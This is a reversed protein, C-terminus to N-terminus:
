TKNAETANWCANKQGFQKLWNKLVPYDARWDLPQRWDLYGLSAALTITVLDVQYPDPPNAEFVALASRIKVHQHDLWRASPMSSDRFRGEYTVLLAADTIGDALRASTLARFRPLGQKPLLGHDSCGDLMEMIVHSDFFAEQGILLCPMKGLPNQRRLSDDRNLTDAPEVTVKDTLGLVLLAMRVKRGFPSTVTTRLVVPISPDDILARLDTMANDTTLTKPVL